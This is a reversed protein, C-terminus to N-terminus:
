KFEDGLEDMLNGYPMTFISNAVESLEKRFLIKGLTTRREDDRDGPFSEYLGFVSSVYGRRYVIPDHERSKM